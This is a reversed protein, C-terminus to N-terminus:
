GSSRLLDYQYYYLSWYDKSLKIVGDRYKHHSTPCGILIYM